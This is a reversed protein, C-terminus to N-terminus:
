AASQAGGGLVSQNLDDLGATADDKAQARLADYEQAARKLDDPCTGNPSIAKRVKAPLAKWAAALADMGQECTTKLTSRAQEVQADPLRATAGFWHAVSRLTVRFM